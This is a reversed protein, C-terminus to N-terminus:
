RVVKEIEDKTRNLISDGGFIAQPNKVLITEIQEDTVGGRNLAPIINEFIHGVHWNEVLGIM